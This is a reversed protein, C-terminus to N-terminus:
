PTATTPLRLRNRVGRVGEPALALVNARDRAAADPAPGDLTVLGNETSVEIQLASLGPDAALATRVRASIASDDLAGEVRQVQSVSAQAVQNGSQELAMLGADLRQSLSRGDYWNAVLLASSVGGLLLGAAFAPWRRRPRPAVVVPAPAVVAAETAGPLVARPATDRTPFPLQM